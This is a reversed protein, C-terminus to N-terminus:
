YFNKDNWFNRVPKDFKERENQYVRELLESWKRMLKEADFNERVFACAKESLRLNKDKNELLYVVYKVFEDENKFLLGTQNHRITDM